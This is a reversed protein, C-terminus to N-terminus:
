RPKPDVDIIAHKTKQNIKVKQLYERAQRRATFIGGVFLTCCVFFWWRGFMLSVIAIAIDQAIAFRKLISMREMNVANSAVRPSPVGAAFSIATMWVVAMFVFVWARGLFLLREVYVNQHQEQYIITALILSEVLFFIYRNM